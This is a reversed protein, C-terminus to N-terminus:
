TQLLPLRCTVVTGAGPESQIQISGHHARIIDRCLSLGLGTGGRGRAADARFFRDFVRARDAESIGKGTDSVEIRAGDSASIRLCIEGTETHQIANQTLNILVRRMAAEDGRVVVSEPAELRLVLGRERVLRGYRGVVEHALEDLGVPDARLLEGRDLRALLLLDEVLSTMCDAESEITELASRMVDPTAGPQRALSAEGKILALPSRLEHSADAAFERQRRYAAEVRDLMADFSGALQSLEDGVDPLHLRQSLNAAGIAQAARNIALVPDAVRRALLFGLGLSCALAALAGFALLRAVHSLTREVPALSHAIQLAGVFRGGMRVPVSSIRLPVPGARVTRLSERTSHRMEALVPGAPLQDLVSPKSVLRGDEALLRVQTIQPALQPLPDFVVRQPESGEWVLQGHEFEVFLLNAETAAHLEEDVDARLAQELQVYLVTGLLAVLLLLVGSFWLTLRVSIRRLLTITM